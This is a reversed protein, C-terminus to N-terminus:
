TSWNCYINDNKRLARPFLLARTVFSFVIFFTFNSAVSNRFLYCMNIYGLEGPTCALVLSNLKVSMEVINFFLCPMMLKQYDAHLRCDLNAAQLSSHQTTNLRVTWVEVQVNSKVTLYIIIIASMLVKLQYNHKAHGPHLLVQVSM